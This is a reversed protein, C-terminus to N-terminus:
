AGKNWNRIAQGSYFFESGGFWVVYEDMKAIYRLVEAIYRKNNYYVVVTSGVKMKEGM